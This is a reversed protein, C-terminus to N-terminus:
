RLSLIFHRKSFFLSFNWSIVAIKVWLPGPHRRWKSHFYNNNQSNAWSQWSNIEIDFIWVSLSCHTQQFKSSLQVFECFSLKKWEFHHNKQFRVMKLSFVLKAVNKTEWILGMTRHHYESINVLWIYIKKKMKEM